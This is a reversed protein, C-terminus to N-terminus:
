KLFIRVHDASREGKYGDYMDWIREGLKSAMPSGDMTRYTIIEDGGEIELDIDYELEALSCISCRRAEEIQETLRAGNWKAGDSIRVWVEGTEAIAAGDKIKCSENVYIEDDFAVAAYPLDYIDGKIGYWVLAARNPVLIKWYLANMVVTETEINHFQAIKAKVMNGTVEM